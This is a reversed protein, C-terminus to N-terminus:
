RPQPQPQPLDALNLEFVAGSRAVTMRLRAPWFGRQPDLWVEVRWDNLRQNERLLYVTSVTGLPGDLNVLGQNVFTWVDGLGRADVM